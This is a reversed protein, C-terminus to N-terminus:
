KIILEKQSWKPQGKKILGGCLSCVCDKRAKVIKQDVFDNEM